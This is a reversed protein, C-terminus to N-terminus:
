STGRTISQRTMAHMRRKGNASVARRDRNTMSSSLIRSELREMARADAFRQHDYGLIHLLGHVFLMATERVLTNRSVQTRQAIRAPCLVVQGILTDRATQHLPFSMVDAPADKHRLASNLKQSETFSVFTVSVELHRLRPASYAVTTRALQNCRRSSLTPRAGRHSVEIHLQLSRALM